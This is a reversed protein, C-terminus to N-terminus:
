IKSGSMLSRIKILNPYDYEYKILAYNYEFSSMQFQCKVDDSPFM